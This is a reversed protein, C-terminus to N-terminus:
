QICSAQTMIDLRCVGPMHDRSSRDQFESPLIDCDAADLDIISSRLNAMDTFKGFDVVKLGRVARHQGRVPKQSYQATPLTLSDITRTLDLNLVKACPIQDTTLHFRESDPTHRM